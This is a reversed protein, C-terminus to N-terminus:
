RGSDSSSNSPIASCAAVAGARPPANVARRVDSARARPAPRPRAAPGCCRSRPASRPRTRPAHRSRRGLAVADGAARGCARRERAPAGPPRAIAPRTRVHHDSPLSTCFNQASTWGKAATKWRGCTRQDLGLPRHSLQRPAPRHRATAGRPWAARPVRGRRERARAPRREVASALMAEDRSFSAEPGVRAVITRHARARAGRSTGDEAFQDSRAQASRRSAASGRRPRGWSRRRPRARAGRRRARVDSERGSRPAAAPRPVPPRSAAAHSITWEPMPGTNQLGNQCRARFGDFDFGHSELKVAQRPAIGCRPGKVARLPRLENSPADSTSRSHVHGRHTSQPASGAQSRAGALRNCPKKTPSPQAVVRRDCRRTRGIAISEGWRMRAIQRATAAFMRAERSSFMSCSSRVAKPLRENSHAGCRQAASFVDDEGRKAGSVPRVSGDHRATAAFMRAERSSAFNRSRPEVGRCACRENRGFELGIVVSVRIGLKEFNPTIKTADCTLNLARESYGIERACAVFGNRVSHGYNSRNRFLVCCCLFRPEGRARAMGRPRM